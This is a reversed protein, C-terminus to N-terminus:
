SIHEKLIVSDNSIKCVAVLMGITFWIYVSLQLSYFHTDFFSHVLFASVGSLLGVIMAFLNKNKEYCYKLQNLTYYYLRAMIWFFCFLGVFGIESALQLYCNHAYTPDMHLNGRYAQFVGMFTNIGHGFFIKDKLMDLSVGWVGLRWSVTQYRNIFELDLSNRLILFSVVCLSAIALFIKLYSDSNFKERSRRICFILFIIGSFVGIWAGRSFTIVLSWMSLIFILSAGARYLFKQKGILIWALIGSLFITLYGGLGNSTKFGATARSGLEISHGLFIDKGTIYFQIFSDVVTSFATFVFIGLAIYIHRKDKFVEVVLFYIIFWELTKTFFNHFSQAFFASSTISFLCSLIFFFIPKNLPTSEPKFAKGIHLFKRWCVTSIEKSRVAFFKTKFDM